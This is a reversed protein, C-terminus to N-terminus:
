TGQPSLSSAMDGPGSLSHRLTGQTSTSLDLIQQVSPSQVVAEQASSLPAVSGKSSSPSGQQWQTPPIVNLPLSSDYQSLDLIQDHLFYSSIEQSSPFHSLSNQAVSLHGPAVFVSHSIVLAEPRPPLHGLM